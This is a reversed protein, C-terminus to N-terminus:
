PLAADAEALFVVAAATMHLAYAAIHTPVTTRTPGQGHGGLRNRAPPVGSELLSRLGSFHGQWFSPVLEREFCVGILKGATAGDGVPWGRRHCISKMASELAKLSENLAGKADGKRLHEHAKLFEEQAGPYHKGALIQLAPKVVEAHMYESDRRIIKGDEFQYGAGYESFRTNLESVAEQVRARVYSRRNAIFRFFGFSVEVADLVRSVNAEQLVFTVLDERDDAYPSAALRFTGYEKRLLRAIGSYVDRPDEGIRPVVEDLIQVIQVRLADPILDYRYMDPVEGRLRKQRKSFIDMVTM